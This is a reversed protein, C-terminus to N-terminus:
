NLIHGLIIDTPLDLFRFSFIHKTKTNIILINPDTKPDLSYFKHNLGFQKIIALDILDSKNSQTHKIFYPM